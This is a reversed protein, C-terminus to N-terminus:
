LQITKETLLRIISEFDEVYIGSGTNDFLLNLLEAEKETLPTGDRLIITAWLMISSEINLIGFDDPKALKEAYKNYTVSKLWKLEEPNFKSIVNEHSLVLEIFPYILVSSQNYMYESAYETLELSEYIKALEMYGDNRKFLAAFGNNKDILSSIFPTTDMYFTYAFAMPHEICAMALEHSTANDIFEEPLQCAKEKENWTMNKWKETGVEVTYPFIEPKESLVISDLEQEKEGDDVSRTSAPSSGDLSTLKDSCSVIFLGVFAFLIVKRM